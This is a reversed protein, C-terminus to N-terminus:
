SGARIVEGSFDISRDEQRAFAASWRNTKFTTKALRKFESHDRFCDRLRL